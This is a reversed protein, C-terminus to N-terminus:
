FKGLKLEDKEVLGQIDMSDLLQNIKGLDKSIFRYNLDGAFFIVDYDHILRKSDNNEM